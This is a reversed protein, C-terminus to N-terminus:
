EKGLARVLAADNASIIRQIDSVMQGSTKPFLFSLPGETAAVSLALLISQSDELAKVLDDRSNLAALIKARNAPWNGRSAEGESPIECVIDGSGKEKSDSIWDGTMSAVFRPTHTRADM